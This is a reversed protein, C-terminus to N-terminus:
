SSNRRFQIVNNAQISLITNITQLLIQKTKNRYTKSSSSTTSYRGPHEKESKM